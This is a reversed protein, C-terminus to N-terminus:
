AVVGPASTGAARRAAAPRFRWTRAFNAVLRRPRPRPTALLPDFDSDAVADLAADGGAVFATIALRSWGSLGTALPRGEDLLRRARSVEFAILARLASTAPGSALTEPDVGFRELDETPLYIRGAAADEAVDQLHEAIQLATCIADSQADREASATLGPIRVPGGAAAAAGFVALVLRGVPNASYRCYEVLDDYTAYRTIRQDRRNAEILDRLLQPDAGVELVTQTARAVLPEIGIPSILAATVEGDLWDLAALRDGAYDDGLQDVFRAYGYVALLHARVAKPLVRLAVPFNEGAARGLVAAETPLGAPRSPRTCPSVM